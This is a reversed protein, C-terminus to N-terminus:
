LVIDNFNDIIKIAKITNVKLLSITNVIKDKYMSQM